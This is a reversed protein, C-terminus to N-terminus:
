IHQFKRNYIDVVKHLLLLVAEAFVGCILSRVVLETGNLHIVSLLVCIMNVCILILRFKKSYYEIESKDLKKNENDAPGMLVIIVDSLILAMWWTFDNQIAGLVLLTSFIYICSFIYCGMKTRAHYGGASRRLPILVSAILLLELVRNLLIGICLYSICHIFKLMLSDLGFEYVAEDEQSIIKNAILKKVIVKKM